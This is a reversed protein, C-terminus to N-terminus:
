HKEIIRLHWAKKYINLSHQDGKRYGGDALIREIFSRTYTFDYMDDPDGPSDFTGLTRKLFNRQEDSLLFDPTKM